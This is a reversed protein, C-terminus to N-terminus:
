YRKGLIFEKVESDDETEKEAQTKVEASESAKPQGEKEEVEEDANEAKSGEVRSKKLDGKVLDEKTVRRKSCAAADAEESSNM